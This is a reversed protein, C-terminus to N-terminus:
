FCGSLVCNDLGREKGAPGYVFRAVELGKHNLLTIIGGKNGLQVGPGMDLQADEIDAGVGARASGTGCSHRQHRGAWMWLETVRMNPKLHPIFFAADRTANRRALGAVGASRLGRFLSRATQGIFGNGGAVPMVNIDVVVERDLVGACRLMTTLWTRSVFGPMSPISLDDELMFRLRVCM